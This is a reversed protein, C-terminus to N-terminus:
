ISDLQTVRMVEEPSTVGSVVKAMGDTRLTRMGQTVAQRKIDSAPARNMILTRLEESMVLLEYIATRGQFGSNFCDDCGPSVAM